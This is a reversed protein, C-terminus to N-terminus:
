GISKYRDATQARQRGTCINFVQSKSVTTGNDFKQAILGYSLGMDRLALILEIEEDTLKARQHEAGIRKGAANVPVRRKAMTNQGIQLFSCTRKFPQRIQKFNRIRLFNRTRKVM